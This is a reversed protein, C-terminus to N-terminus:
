RYRIRPDLYGYVLDVLLNIALYAGAIFVMVGQLLVFDRQRISDLVLRGIGPLTFITEIIVAGGLLHGVEFGVITIVPISANKLVHRLTVAIETLGKAWATRVYDQRLVELVCSRTMRMILAAFYFGLALAPLAFQQLNGWPDEALPQYIAPPTWGLFVSPGFLLLTGLWFSPIALGTIAVLRSAHDLWTDQRIAALIGTPLAVVLSVLTALLALELTVPIALGIEELVPTNKWFSVGLDGRLTSFLWSAYQEYLPRDLGLKHKLALLDERRMEEGFKADVVDGPIVWITMFVLITVGLLAPLFLALRRLVYQRM